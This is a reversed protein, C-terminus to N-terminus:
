FHHFKLWDSTLDNTLLLTKDSPLGANCVQLLNKQNRCM